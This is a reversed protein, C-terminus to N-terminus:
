DELQETASKYGYEYLQETPLQELGPIQRARHEYAFYPVGDPYKGSLEDYIDRTAKQLLGEIAPAPILYVSGWWEHQKSYADVVAECSDIAQEITDRYPQPHDEKDKFYQLAELVLYINM